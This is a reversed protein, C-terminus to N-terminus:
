GGVFKSPSFDGLLFSPSDVFGLPSGMWGRSFVCELLSTLNAGDGGKTILLSDFVKSSHTSRCDSALSEGLVASTVGMLAYTKESIFALGITPGACILSVPVFDFIKCFLIIPFPLEFVDPVDFPFPFVFGEGLVVFVM